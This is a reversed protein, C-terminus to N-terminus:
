PHLYNCLAGKKCHGSEYFKCVRQGRPTHPPRSSGRDSGFSSQRSWSPRSRSSSSGSDAGHYSRDKPGSHWGANNSSHRSQQNGRIGQNGMAFNGRQQTNSSRSSKVHSTGRAMHVNGSVSGSRLSNANERLMGGTETTESGARQSADSTAVDLSRNRLATAHGHSILELRRISGSDPKLEGEKGPSSVSEVSTPPLSSRAPSCSHSVPGQQHVSVFAPKLQGEKRPSSISDLSLPAQPLQAPPLRQSILEEEQHMPAYTPKREGEQPSTPSGPSTAPPSPNAPQYSQSLSDRQHMSAYAPKVGENEQPSMASDVTAIPLSTQSPSQTEPQAVVDQQDVSVYALRTEGNSGPGISSDLCSTSSPPQLLAPSDVQSVLKHEHMSVCAQKVERGEGSKVASDPTVTPLPLQAPLHSQCVLEPHHTSVHAPKLEREAPTSICSDLSGTPLTPQSPPPSHPHSVFSQQNMSVYTPKLGVGAIPNASSDISMTFVPLTASPHALSVLEAQQISVLAPKFEGEGEPSSSSHAGSMKPIDNVDIPFPGHQGDTTIPHSHFQIDCTSSMADHKGPDLPPSLGVLPSFCDDGPSDMSDHGCNMRSTPSAIGNLSELAEVESLLDSVSQDGILELPEMGHWRSAAYDPHSPPSPTLQCSEPTPTAHDSGPETQKMSSCSALGSDLEEASTKTHLQSYGNWGGGIGPLQVVESVLSSATSWRIVSGQCPINSTVYHKNEVVQVKVGQNEQEPDTTPLDPFKVGASVTTWSTGSDQVPVNSAVSQKVDVAQVKADRPRQLDSLPVGSTAFGSDTGLDEGPVIETAPKKNDVVLVDSDKHDPKPTSSPPELFKIGGSSLGQSDVSNQGTANQGNEVSEGKLTVDGIPTPRPLVSLEINKQNMTEFSCSASPSCSNSVESSLSDKVSFLKQVQESSKDTDSHTNIQKANCPGGSPQKNTCSWEIAQTVDSCCKENPKPDTGTADTNDISSTVCEAKSDDSGVSGMRTLADTLLMSQDQSENIGWVRFDTPFYGNSSWKRLQLMCFPGQVKGSPDQYHWIKDLEGSDSVAMGPSITMRAGDSSDWFLNESAIAAHSNNQISRDGGNRLEVLIRSVADAGELTLPSECDTDNTAAAVDEKGPQFKSCTNGKHEWNSASSRLPKVVTVNSADGGRQMAPLEMDKAASNSGRPFMTVDEKKIESQGTDEDSEYSPDMRPDSHVEPIENLRRRREGPTKLLELKEICERLEKRHGMESARDRLHNLRLIEAELVDNIRVTQLAISKEQIEGVTMREVLGCKISQRLRGCEDESFEQNSIVDITIDEIRNLNLIKLMFNATKNGVKYPEAAKSTGVVRVLRYIEQKPDNGSIRIRVISGLVMEHFKEPDELLNEMLSRKLYILNINHVDVAAFNDLRTQQGREDCKRRTQRKKDKNMTQIVESSGETEVQGAVPNKVAAQVIGNARFDEKFHYELLKLMEFHGVRARGFLNELRQDCIIQSKRRPDRLNNKRIYELLLAQVDFQTLVSTDGNKMHAVFELLEKSAWEVCGHPLQVKDDTVKEVRLPVKNHLPPQRHIRRRKSVNAELRAKDIGASHMKQLSDDRHGLGSGKWPNTARTLEDLTLSEKQKLYVWYVKFLYEWSTKDDFDVHGSEKNGQEINEILLITTMCTRCFGKSGRVCLIDAQRVCGKCLSSPCTYCMFHANKQCINCIHWGCNWRVRGRFFAEDRKVCAPHYAKPCDRRDCLVLTGGDFCIFCVDEEEKKFKKPAPVVTTTTMTKAQGRPPRGRKKRVNGDAVEAGKLEIEVQAAGMQTDGAAGSAAGLQVASSEQVDASRDVATLSDERRKLNDVTPQQEAVVRHNLDNEM